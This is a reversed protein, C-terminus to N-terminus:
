PKSEPKKGRNSESTSPKPEDKHPTPKATSEKALTLRRAALAVALRAKEVAFVNKDRLGSDVSGTKYLDETRKSTTEAERLNVEALQLEIELTKVDTTASGPEAAAAPRSRLVGSGLVASPGPVTPSGSGLTPM